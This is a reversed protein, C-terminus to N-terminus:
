KNKVAVLCDLLTDSDKVKSRDLSLEGLSLVDIWDELIVINIEIVRDYWDKLIWLSYVMYGVLFGLVVLLLNGIGLYGLSSIYWVYLSLLIVLNVIQIFWGKRKDSRNNLLDKLETYNSGMKKNIDLKLEDIKVM